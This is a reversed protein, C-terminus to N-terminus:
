YRGRVHAEYAILRARIKLGGPDIETPGTIQSLMIEDPPSLAVTGHRALLGAILGALTALDRDRTNSLEDVAVVVETEWVQPVVSEDAAAFESPGVPNPHGVQIFPPKVEPPLEDYAIVAPQGNFTSLLAAIEAQSRLANAVATRLEM